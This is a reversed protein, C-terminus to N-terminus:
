HQDSTVTRKRMKRRRQVINNQQERKSKMSLKLEQKLTKLRTFFATRVLTEELEVGTFIGFAHVFVNAASKNWRSRPTGILDVRFNEKTCCDGGTEDAECLKAFKSADEASVSSLGVDKM